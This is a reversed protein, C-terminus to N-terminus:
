PGTTSRRRRTPTRRTPWTSRACTCPTRAPPSTRSTPRTRASTGSTSRARPRTSRASTRPTRSAPRSSSSARSGRAPDPRGARVRDHDRARDRGRDLVGVRGARGRGAPVAQDARGHLHLDPGPGPERLHHRLHLLAGPPEGPGPGARREAHLPVPRGPRGLDVHLDGHHEGHDGAADRHADRGAPDHRREDVRPSEPTQDVSGAPSKARVLLEHEGHPINTYTKPSSCPSYTTTDLACEFTANPSPSSFTFTETTSGTEIPPLGASSLVTEPADEIVWNFVAPSADPQLGPDVARVRLEYEGDPLGDYELPPECEEYPEGNLSCEFTALNTPAGDLRAEFSFTYIADPGGATVAPPTSTFITDFAPPDPVPFVTWEYTAPSEDVIQEGDLNTFRSVARVEFEHEEGSEPDGVALPGATFPSSCPTWESGDVSCQFTVGDAATQDSSFTFVGSAGFSPDPPGSDIQTDPEGLVTWNRVAPSADVNPVPEAMDIARVRLTHSGTALGVLEHVGECSEFPDNDLSCEYEEVLETSIFAFMVDPGSVSGEAPGSFIITDPAQTDVPADILWEYFDPTPDLNGDPDRARVYMVHPGGSLGTVTYPQESCDM